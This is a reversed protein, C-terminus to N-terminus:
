NPNQICFNYCGLTKNTPSRLGVCLRINLHHVNEYDYIYTNDLIKLTKKKPPTNNEVGDIECPLCTEFM